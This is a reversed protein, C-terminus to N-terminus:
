VLLSCVQCYSILEHKSELEPNKAEYNYYFGLFPVIKESLITSNKPVSSVLPIPRVNGRSVPVILKVNSVDVTFFYDQIM